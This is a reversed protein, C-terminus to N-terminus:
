RHRCSIEWWREPVLATYADTTVVAVAFQVAIGHVVSGRGGGVGPVRVILLVSRGGM